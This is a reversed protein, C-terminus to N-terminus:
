DYIIRAASSPFKEAMEDLYARLQEAEEPLRAVLAPWGIFTLTGPMDVLGTIADWFASWNRGYFSPFDLAAALAGHLGDSTVVQRLDVTIETSKQYV